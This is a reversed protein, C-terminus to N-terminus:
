VYAKIYKQMTSCHISGHERIFITSDIPIIDKDQYFNGFFDLVEEDYPDNYIPILVAGNIFLFNLYTAPLRENNYYVPHPLPLPALRFGTKELEKEMKDLEFFHEDKKDYCKAYAITDKDIFRALTDIHADTDDGVLYGNELWIIRRVCLRKKLYNEIEDKSLFKNRNSNLLCRKTTLLVGDGNTDISGGELIFEESILTNKFVGKKYLERNVLNDLNADFKGGWGNFTFDCSVIEGNKFIDIAGYDRIWTDNTPIEVLKINPNTISNLIKKVRKTDDCLVVCKQYNSIAKILAIYSDTIEDLCYGWDSKAHPFAVLILGQKEWEAVMKDRM